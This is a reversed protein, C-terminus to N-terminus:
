DSYSNTKGDSQFGAGHGPKLPTWIGRGDVPVADPAPNAHFIM